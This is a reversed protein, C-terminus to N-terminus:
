LLQLIEHLEKKIMDKSVVEVDTNTSSTDYVQNKYIVGSGNIDKKAGLEKLRQKAGEITYRENHLMTKLQTLIEIHKETYFRQGGASKVPRLQKFHSEWYRLTSAPLDIIKVVEGIKYLKDVM